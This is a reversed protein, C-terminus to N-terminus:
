NNKEEQKKNYVSIKEALAEDFYLASVNDYVMFYFFPYPSKKMRKIMNFIQMISKSNEFTCVRLNSDIRDLFSQEGTYVIEYAFCKQKKVEYFNLRQIKDFPLLYKVKKTRWVSLAHLEIFEIKLAEDELHVLFKNNKCLIFVKVGYFVCSWLTYAILLLVVAIILSSTFENFGDSDLALVSFSKFFQITVPIAIIGMFVISFVLAAPHRFIPSNIELSIGKNEVKSDNM